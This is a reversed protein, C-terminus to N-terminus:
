VYWLTGTNDVIAYDGKIVNINDIEPLDNSTKFAGIFKGGREGVDGKISDGKDGKKLEINKFAEKTKSINGAIEEKINAFKDTLEQKMEDEVKQIEKFLILAVDDPKDNELAEAIEILKIQKKTIETM